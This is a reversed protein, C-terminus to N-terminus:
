NQAQQEPESRTRGDDEGQETEEEEETAEAVAPPAEAQQTAAADVHTTSQAAVPQPAAVGGQRALIAGCHGCVATDANADVYVPSNCNPCTTQIPQPMKGTPAVGKQGRVRDAGASGMNRLVDGVPGQLIKSIQEWKAVDADAEMEYKREEWDLKKMDLERNQRMEELKLDFETKNGTIGLAGAMEKIYKIQEVPDAPMKDQIEKLKMDMIEKDKKSLSEYFPRNMEAVLKITDLASQIGGGSAPVTMTVPAPTNDKLAKILAAIGELTIGGQPQGQSRRDELLLKLLYETLDEKKDGGQQRLLAIANMPNNGSDLTNVLVSLNNAMEPTMGKLIEKIEDPSKGAFIAAAASGSPAVGRRLEDLMKKAKLKDIEQLTEAVEDQKYQRIREMGQEQPSARRKALRVYDEADTSLPKSSMM